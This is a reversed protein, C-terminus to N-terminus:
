VCVGDCVSVKEDHKHYSILIKAAVDGVDQVAVPTHQADPRCPGVFKGLRFFPISPLFSKVPFSSSM